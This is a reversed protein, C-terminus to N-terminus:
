DDSCLCYGGGDSDCDGCDNCDYSNKSPERYQRSMIASEMIGESLNSGKHNFKEVLNGIDLAM